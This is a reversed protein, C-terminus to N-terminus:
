LMGLDMAKLVARTRDKVDLKSLISSVQNRVTGESRFTAGAIENNTYGAAVLQLIQQEKETLPAGLPTHSKESPTVQSKIRETVIPQMWKKGAAVTKIASVLTHLSVDKKLYGKAGFKLCELVLDHEDFTTLVLANCDEGQQQIAELFELGNMVPMRIDLLIVDATTSQLLELAHQGDWAEGCVDIDSDLSLLSKIGERVLTQDDIVLVNISM